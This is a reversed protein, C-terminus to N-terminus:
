RSMMYKRKSAQVDGHVHNSHSSKIMMKACCFTAMTVGAKWLVQQYHFPRARQHGKEEQHEGQGMEHLVVSYSTMIDSSRDGCGLSM